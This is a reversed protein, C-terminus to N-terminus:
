IPPVVIGGRTNAFRREVPPVVIGGRTNAFRREVLSGGPGAVLEAKEVSDGSKRFFLPPDKNLATWTIPKSGTDIPEPVAVPERDAIAAVPAPGLDAAVSPTADFPGIAVGAYLQSIRAVEDCYPVMATSSSSLSPTEAIDAIAESSGGKKKPSPTLGASSGRKKHLRMVALLANMEACQHKGSTVVSLKRWAGAFVTQMAQAFLSCEFESVHPHVERAAKSLEATAIRPSDSAIALLLQFYQQLVYEPDTSSFAQTWIPVHQKVAEEYEAVSMTNSTRSARKM